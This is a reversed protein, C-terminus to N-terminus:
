REAEAKRALEADVLAAVSSEDVSIGLVEPIAEIIEARDHFGALVLYRANIRMHEISEADPPEPPSAAVESDEQRETRSYWWSLLLLLALGALGVVIKMDASM